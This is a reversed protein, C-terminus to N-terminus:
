HNTDTRSLVQAFAAALEKSPEAALGMSRWAVYRDPRVLIAGQDGVERADEWEGVVDDYECRLGVQYVNIDIGFEGAVDEAAKIWPAGGIGVFVSFKGHGALDITSVQKREHEIWAHPITSGPHSTPEYYLTADRTLDPFPTGDGAVAASEYRQGLEVGLANSRYHQKGIESRLVRRRETARPSDEYLERLAAWGDDVSQDAKLGMAAVFSALYGFTENALRVVEAGVPRREDSYSDLLGDGAKGQLVAILKWCLNFADQVSTNTGLGGAPPHRHAADGALFVRGKRYQKAVVNNVSWTSIGKIKVEVDPDGITIRARELVDSESPKDEANWPFVMVWENYPRIMVWSATGFWAEHGPQAVWNLVSPRYAAYKELDAEIWCNAMGRLGAQGAFEIGVASATTSNGGDAGIVYKSRVEYEAGSQRDLVRSVVGDPTQELGLLRMNFRVDAGRERAADLLVPEMLIQQINWGGTPSAAAYDSLRDVPSGYSKYRAIEPGAWSTTLLNHSYVALPYGVAHLRDEVNLDRFIEMTRANTIHARPTHATGVYQSITLAPVGAAALINTATLGTPGTGVVLVDTDITHIDFEEAVM